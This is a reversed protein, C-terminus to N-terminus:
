QAIVDAVPGRYDFHMADSFGPWLGGWAWGQEIFAQVLWLPLDTLGSAAASDAAALLASQARTIGAATSGGLVGRVEEVRRLRERLVRARAAQSRDAAIADLATQADARAQEVLPLLAQVLM